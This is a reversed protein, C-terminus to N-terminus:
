QVKAAENLLSKLEKIDVPKLLCAFVGMGKAINEVEEDLDASYIITKITTPMGAVRGILELGNMGPMHYDTLIIDVPHRGLYELCEEACVTTSVDFDGELALKLASALAPEDDVILLKLKGPEVM